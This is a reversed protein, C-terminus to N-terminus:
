VVAESFDYDCTFVLAGLCYDKGDPRVVKESVPWVHYGNSVGDARVRRNVDTLVDFLERAATESDMKLLRGITITFRDIRATVGATMSQERVLEQELTYSNDLVTAPQRNLSFAEISRILGPETAEVLTMLRDRLESPTLAAM